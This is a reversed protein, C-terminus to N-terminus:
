RYQYVYGIQFLFVPSSINGEGISIGPQLFFGNTNFNYVIGVYNWKINVWKKDNNTGSFSSIGGVVNLSHYTRDFESFKYGVDIQIGTGFTGLSFGTAKLVLDDIHKSFVLNFNAPMGLTIGLESKTKRYQNNTKSKFEIKEIEAMKYEFETGKETKIVVGNNLDYKIIKGTVKTGNNLYIIDETENSLAINAVFFLFLVLLM